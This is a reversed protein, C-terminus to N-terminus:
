VIINNDIITVKSGDSDIGLYPITNEYKKDENLM